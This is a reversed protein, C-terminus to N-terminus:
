FFSIAGCSAGEGEFLSPIEEEVSFTLRPDEASTKLGSLLIFVSFFLAGKKM